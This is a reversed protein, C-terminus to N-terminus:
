NNKNFKNKSFKLKLPFPKLNFNELIMYFKIERSHLRNQKELQLWCISHRSM